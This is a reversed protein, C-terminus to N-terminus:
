LKRRLLDKVKTWKIEPYRNNDLPELKAKGEFMDRFYQMGQWIPYLKDKAPMFAKTLKIYFSLMKLNGGYLLRFKKGSVFSLIEALERASIENGSIRLYRPTKPDLAARSTFEATNDITTFDMKQDPNQFYLIRRIKYLILPMEKLLMDAFAGNFISTSSIPANDLLIHFKRRLDLNRNKGEPFKTFDISFDSPIFRPVGAIVAADLLISQKELIVDYLGSLASVVCSVGKLSSSLLSASSFDTTVIEAGLLKLNNIKDKQTEKRVLAIVSVGKKILEKVIKGGLNGTAGAVLVKEKELVM